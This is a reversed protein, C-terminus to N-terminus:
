LHQDPLELPHKYERNGEGDQLEETHILAIVLFGCFWLLPTNWGKGSNASSINNMKTLNKVSNTPLAVLSNMRQVTSTLTGAIKALDDIRVPYSLFIEEFREPQKTVKEIGFLDRNFYIIALASFQPVYDNTEKRFSDYFDEPPIFGKELDEFLSNAHHQTFFEDFEKVGYEIFLDRTLSYNLNLFIGGLDFIINKVSLM